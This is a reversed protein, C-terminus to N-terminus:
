GWGHMKNQKFQGQYFTDDDWFTGWGHKKGKLCQGEYCYYGITEGRNGFKKYVAMDHMQFRTCDLWYPVRLNPSNISHGKLFKFIEDM